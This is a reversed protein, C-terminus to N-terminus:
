NITSEVCYPSVMDVTSMQVAEQIGKNAMDLSQGAKALASLAQNDSTLRSQSVEFHERCRVLAEELGDEGPVDPTPGNFISNYLTDLARQSQEHREADTQLQLNRTEATQLASALEDRAEKASRESQWAQLFEKEEKEQRSTFKDQGKSGGLKYTWRKFTSDRYKVHDQTSM